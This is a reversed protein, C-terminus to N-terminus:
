RVAGILGALAIVVVVLLLVGMVLLVIPVVRDYFTTSPIRPTQKRPPPAPSQPEESNSM